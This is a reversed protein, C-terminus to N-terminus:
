SVVSSAPMTNDLVTSRSAKSGPIIATGYAYVEVSGVSNKAGKSISATELKCNFVVVGGCAAAKQKMRIIAERRARELLSEYTRVRGGVMGRLGAIFRKFYDVSIVVSGDVFQNDYRDDQLTKPLKKSPIILIDKLADEQKIIRTFHRKEIITGFGYGLALLTIFIIIDIYM